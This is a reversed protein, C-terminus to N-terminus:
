MPWVLTLLPKLWQTLGHMPCKILHIKKGFHLAKKKFFFVLKITLSNHSEKSLNLETEQQSYHIRTESQSLAVTIQYFVGCLAQLPRWKHTRSAPTPTIINHM